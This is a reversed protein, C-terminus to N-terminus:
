IYECVLSQENILSVLSFYAKILFEVIKVWDNRFKTLIVHEHTGYISMTEYHNPFFELNKLILM